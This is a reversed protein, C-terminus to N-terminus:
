PETQIRWKMKLGAPIPGRKAEWVLIGQGRQVERVLMSMQQSRRQTIAPDMHRAQRLLGAAPGAEIMTASIPLQQGDLEVTDVEIGVEYAPQPMSQRDLRTVRGLVMAGQPIVVKEGDTVARSVRARVRHGLDATAADLPAALALELIAQSPLTVAAPKPAPAETVDDRLSSEAQFVKCGGLKMRNLHELGDTGVVTLTAAVPVLFKEERVTIRGYTLTTNVESLGLAPSIDFAQSELRILDLTAPDLWFSGQFGVASEIGGARVKYSSQGQAVEYYYEHAAQGDRETEGRSGFQAGPMLFVHKALMGYQGTSVTGKGIIEALSRQEFRRAGARAYVESESTLAVELRLTDTKKWAQDASVREFREVTQACVCNPLRNLETKMAALFRDLLAQPDEAAIAPRGLMLVM